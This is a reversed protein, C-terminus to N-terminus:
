RLISAFHDARLDLLRSERFTRRKGELSRKNPNTTRDGFMFWVRYFKTVGIWKMGAMYLIRVAHDDFDFHRHRGRRDREAARVGLKPHDHGEADDM